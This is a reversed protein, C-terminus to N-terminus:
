RNAVKAIEAIQSVHGCDIVTGARSIAYCYPANAFELHLEKAIRTAESGSPLHCYQGYVPAVSKAKRVGESTGGMYLYIIRLKQRVDLPLRALSEIRSAGEIPLAVVIAAKPSKGGLNISGGDLLPIRIDLKKGILEGRSGIAEAEAKATTSAFPSREVRRAIAAAKQADFARAVELYYDQLAPLEGFDKELVGAIKEMEEARNRIGRNKENNNLESREMKLAVDFRDRISIHDNERFDKAIKTAHQRFAEDGNGAGALASLAEIKRAEAAKAHTPYRLYFERARQSAERSLTAHLLSEANVQQATKRDQRSGNPVHNVLRLIASWERDAVAATIADQALVGTATLLFILIANRLQTHM